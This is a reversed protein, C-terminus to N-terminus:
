AHFPLARCSVPCLNPLVDFGGWSMWSTNVVAIDLSLEPFHHVQYFLNGTSDERIDFYELYRSYADLKDAAFDNLKGALYADNLYDRSTCNRLFGTARDLHKAVAIQQVDHNGPTFVFRSLSCGTAKAIKDLVADNFYLYVDADDAAQVLDGSFVVVDTKLNSESLKTLDSVLADLVIAINHGQKQSYHLDSLHLINLPRTM